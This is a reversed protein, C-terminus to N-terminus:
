PRAGRRRRLRRRSLGLLGAGLLLFVPAGGGPAAPSQGCSCGKTAADGAPEPPRASDPAGAESGLDRGPADGGPEAGADPSPGAEGRDPQPHEQSDQPGGEAVGGDAGPEVGGGETPPAEPVLEKGKNPDFVCAGAKCSFEDPCQGDSSCSAAADPVCAGYDTSGSSFLIKCTEGTKCEGKSSCFCYSRVATQICRGGRKCTGFMSCDEVCHMKGPNFVVCDLGSACPELPSCGDGPGRMGGAPACYRGMGIIRKCQMGQQCSATPQDTCAGLGLTGLVAMNCLKGQPCDLPARCLCTQKGIGVSLCIGGLSCSSTCSELCVNASGSVKFCTLGPDCQPSSTRCASGAKGEPPGCGKMCRSAGDASPLCGYGADCDGDKACFAGDTGPRAQKCLGQACTHGVPCSHAASCAMPCGGKPLCRKMGAAIARCEFGGPCFDGMGCTQVCFGLGTGRDLCLGGAGCQSTSTCSRCTAPGLTPPDPKCVGGACTEGPGCDKPTVCAVTPCGTKIPKCVKQTVGAVCMHSGPCCGDVSCAQLCRFGEVFRKCSGGACDADTRCPLCHRASPAIPKPSCSNGACRECADCETDHVCQRPGCGYKDMYPKLFTKYHADVRVSIAGGDCYTRGPGAPSARYAASTVGVLVERGSMKLLAPGGSDGHCASKPGKQDWHIFSWTAVQYIPVEVSYKANPAKFSPRTQILGYGMVKVNSGVLAGTMAATNPVLPAAEKVSSALIALGVDNDVGGYPYSKHQVLQKIAYTVKRFGGGTEPVDVRFKVSGAGGYKNAAVICHAATLVVQCTVLSGSCFPSGSPHLLAGVGPRSIDPAGGIVALRTVGMPPGGGDCGAGGVFGFGVAVVLGAIARVVRRDYM